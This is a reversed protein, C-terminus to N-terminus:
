AMYTLHGILTGDVNRVELQVPEPASGGTIARASEAGERIWALTAADPRYGQAYIMSSATVTPRETTTSM